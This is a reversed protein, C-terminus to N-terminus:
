VGKQMSILEFLLKCFYRLNPLSSCVHYFIWFIIDQESWWGFQPYSFHLQITWILTFAFFFFMWFTLTNCKLTTFNIEKLRTENNLLSRKLKFVNLFFLLIKLSVFSWRLCTYIFLHCANRQIRFCIHMYFRNKAKFSSTIIIIKFFKIIKNSIMNTKRIRFKQAITYVWYFYMWLRHSDYETFTKWFRMFTTGFPVFFVM